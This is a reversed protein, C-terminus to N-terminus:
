QTRMRKFTLSLSITKFSLSMSVIDMFFLYHKGLTRFDQILM